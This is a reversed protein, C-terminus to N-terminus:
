CNKKSFSKDNIFNNITEQQKEMLKAIQSLSDEIKSFRQENQQKEKLVPNLELLLKDAKQLITKQTDVSDIILKANTKMTELEQILDKQDTALVLNNARTVSLQEPITYTAQKDKVNITVDIVIKGEINPQPIGVAIVIGEYGDKDNAVEMAYIICSKADKLLLPYFDAHAMNATYIIDGVTSSIPIIYGLEDIIQKVDSVDWHKNTGDSNVMQESAFDALKITFHKGYKELYQEKPTLSKSIKKIIKM